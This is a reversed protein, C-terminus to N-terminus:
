GIDIACQRFWFTKVEFFVIGVTQVMARDLQAFMVTKLALAPTPFVDAVLMTQEEIEVFFGAYM